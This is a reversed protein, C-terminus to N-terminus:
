AGFIEQTMLASDPAPDAILTPAIYKTAADCGGGALTRGGGGDMLAKVRAFHRDSIIRGFSTSTAPNDGYYRTITAKIAEVLRERVDRQVLLYDPALCVQGANFFKNVVIRAAALELDADNHVITPSKGGLELTVPTLHETAARMIHKAVEGNGTYFIHDFRQRLLETTEAVAGQVVKIADTDLYLNVLRELVVASAPALESPKIVAANGAAVAAVLPGLSLQFPFNWPAIIAVVGLPDHKVYSSGPM